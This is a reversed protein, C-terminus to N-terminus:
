KLIRIKNSFSVQCPMASGLEGDKEVKWEGSLHIKSTTYYHVEPHDVKIGNRLKRLNKLYDWISVDGIVAIEMIGDTMSADPAIAIGSGFYKGNSCVVLVANGSWEFEDCKVSLMKKKFTLFCQIIAWGFKIDGSLFAPMRQVREVVKTPLGTSVEGLFYEVRGTQYTICGADLDVYSPNQLRQIFEPISKKKWSMMRAFDNGSGFPLLTLAPAEITPHDKKYMMLGNMCENLIGDGGIVVIVDAKHANDYAIQKGSGFESTFCFYFQLHPPRFESLKKPFFRLKKKAGHLIFLVRM